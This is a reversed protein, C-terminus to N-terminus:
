RAMESKQGGLGASIALDNIKNSNTAPPGSRSKGANDTAQAFGLRHRPRRSEATPMSGIAAELQAFDAKERAMIEWCRSVRRAMQRRIPNSSNLDEGGVNVLDDLQLGHESMFALVVAINPAPARM